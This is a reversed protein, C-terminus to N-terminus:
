AGAVREDPRCRKCPRFGARRADAGAAHFAVNERRPLRAPCAPRCYVGTSRVSYVFTGIAARDRRCVADWLEDDSAFSPRVVDAGGAQTKARPMSHSMHSRSM